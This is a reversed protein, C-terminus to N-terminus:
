VQENIENIENNVSSVAEVTTFTINKEQAQKYVANWEENSEDTLKSYVDSHVYVKFSSGSKSHGVLFAFSELDLLPCNEFSIDSNVLTLEIHKLKTSYHFPKYNKDSSFAGSGDYQIIGYVYELKPCRAFNGKNTMKYGNVFRIVQLNPNVCFGWSGNSEGGYSTNYILLNKGNYFNYGSKPFGFDTIGFKYDYLAEEYTHGVGDIIYPEDLSHDISGYEGVAVRFMDDFLAIKAEEVLSKTAIEEPQPTWVTSNIGEELKIWEITCEDHITTPVSIVRIYSNDAQNLWKFTITGIGNKDLKLNDFLVTGAGTNFGKFAKSEPCTGKITVTYYKGNVPKESLYYNHANNTETLSVPVYSEKLLNKGNPIDDKTAIVEEDFNITTQYQSNGLSKFGKGFSLYAMNSSDPLITQNNNIIIGRITKDKDAKKGVEEVLEAYETGHEDAWDQVAKLTDFTEELNDGLIDLKLNSLDDQTALYDTDVGIRLCNANDNMFSIGDSSNIEIRGINNPNVIFEAGDVAISKIVESDDAKSELDEKTALVKTDPYIRVVYEDGDTAIGEEGLIKIVGTNPNPFASNNNDCAISKIVKSDDAAKTVGELKDQIDTITPGGIDGEVFLNKDIYLSDKVTTGEGDEAYIFDLTINGRVDKSGDFEQGWLTVPTKLRDALVEKEPEWILPKDGKVLTVHNLTFSCNFNSSNNYGIIQIDVTDETYPLEFTFIEPSNNLQLIGVNDSNAVIALPTNINPSTISECYLTYKDGAKVNKLTYLSVLCSNSAASRSTFTDKDLLNVLAKPEYLEDGEEKTIYDKLSDTLENVQKVIATLFEDIAEKTYYVDPNFIDSLPISIPEKGSDTNFTIVINKEEIAVKSVMGDKIFPTADLYMLKTDGHKFYIKGEEYEVDNFLSSVDPIAALDAKGEIKKELATIDEKSTDGGILTWQGNNYYYLKSDKLWINNDTKPAVTNDQMINDYRKM